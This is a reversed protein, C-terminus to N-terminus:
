PHGGAPSQGALLEAYLAELPAPEAVLTEVTLGAARIAEIVAPRSSAPGTALIDDGDIRIGPVLRLLWDAAAAAGRARIRMAGHDDRWAQLAARPLDAVLVGAALVLVRDAIREVDAIQHSTFLVARTGRDRAVLAYFADLGQPDLAATPEDLLLAASRPLPAAARGADIPAM